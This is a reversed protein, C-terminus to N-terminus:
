RRGGGTVASGREPGVDPTQAEVSAPNTSRSRERAQRPVDAGAGTVITGTGLYAASSSQVRCRPSRAQEGTQDSGGPWRV